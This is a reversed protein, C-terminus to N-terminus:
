AEAIKSLTPIDIFRITKRNPLDIVGMAKFEALTRSVTEISMGLYDAMDARPLVVQFADPRRPDRPLHGRIRLLFWALRAITNKQGMILLLPLMEQLVQDAGCPESIAHTNAFRWRYLRCSTIAEATYYQCAAHSPRIVAGPWYFTLIQRNGNELLRVARMVGHVLKITQDQHDGQWFLVRGRPIFTSAGARRDNFKEPDPVPHVTVGRYTPLKLVASQGQM